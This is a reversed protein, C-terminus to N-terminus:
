PHLRKDTYCLQALYDLEGDDASLEIAIEMNQITTRIAENPEDYVSQAIQHPALKTTM